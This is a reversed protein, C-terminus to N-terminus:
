KMWGKPYHNKLMGQVGKGWGIPFGDVTVVTWGKGNTELIGGQLYSEIQPSDSGLDHVNKFSRAQLFLALSHAPEFRDKKLNGLWVGHHAIRLNGLPPIEVPQYYLRDGVIRLRQEDLEISITEACFSRWSRLDPRPQSRAVMERTPKQEKASKKQLLCAFHGEGMIKHPFLRVAKEISVDAGIWDPRGHDFGDFVFTEAVEMEPYTEMLDAIVGEDEEPSFTCTSYLLHGGPRVLKAAIRVINKQRVACGEVMDQSWDARAGQDKRFMGEGSCPADVLVKDFYPGMTDALREPTENTILVNGSGWREVNQILHGIRKNKIENAVLLGNGQMLAAMQTTKGGPAASLDLVRHSPEPNLIQAPVMASPDQLYYLGAAHFPHQGPRASGDLNFANECWSVKAGLKFPSIKEFDGPSIKLTNVRLGSVPQGDLSATFASFEGRPILKKFKDIFLPPIPVNRNSNM